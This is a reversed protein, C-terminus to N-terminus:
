PVLTPGFVVAYALVVVCGVLVWGWSRPIAQAPQPDDVALRVRYPGWAFGSTGGLSAAVASTLVIVLGEPNLLGILVSVLAGALYCLLALRRVRVLRLPGGGLLDGLRTISWVVARDYLWYGVGAMAIRWLWPSAVGHLVGEEGVGLDGIGAVGSFLLYGFATMFGCSGLVWCFLRPLPTQLRPLVVACAVGLLLSMVPGALAVLRVALSGLGRYDCQVYFAGLAQVRGGLLQCALAHGAHEHLATSAVYALAAIAAVTLVDFGPGRSAGDREPAAAM